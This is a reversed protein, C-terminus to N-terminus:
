YQPTNIVRGDCPTNRHLHAHPTNHLSHSWGRPLNAWFASDSFNIASRFTRRFKDNDIKGLRRLSYGFEGVLPGYSDLARTTNKWSTWEVADWVKIWKERTKSSEVRIESIKGRYGLRRRAGTESVSLKFNHIPPLGVANRLHEEFNAMYQMHNAAFHEYQVITHDRVDALDARLSYHLYLWHDLSNIMAQVYCRAPACNWTKMWHKHTALPHRVIMIFSARPFMAQLFQMKMINQPTKELLVPKSLNWHDGWRSFIAARSVSSILDSKGTLRLEPDFAWQCSGGSRKYVTQLWQGEDNVARDFHHGSLWPEFEQQLLYNLFSTGSHPMGGVFLFHYRCVVVQTTEDSDSLRERCVNEAQVPTDTSAVRAVLLLLVLAPWMM